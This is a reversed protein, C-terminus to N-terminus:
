RNIETSHRESSDKEQYCSHLLHPWSFGSMASKRNCVPLPLSPSCLPPEQSLVSCRVNHTQTYSGKLAMPCNNFVYTNTSTMDKGCTSM